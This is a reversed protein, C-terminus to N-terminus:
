PDGMLYVDQIEEAMQISPVLSGRKLVRVMRIVGTQGLAVKVEYLKWGLVILLPNMLIQGSRYTIVFLGVWFVLFGGLKQPEAYSLGMFSVVYPLVYNILDNPIAKTELVHVRHTLRVSRLVRVMLLLASLTVAVSGWALWPHAFIQFQCDWQGKWGCVPAGWYATSIDQVMLILALPLYSGLFIFVATWFRFQM